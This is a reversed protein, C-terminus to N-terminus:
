ADPKAEGWRKLWEVLAARCIAEPVTLAWETSHWPMGWDSFTALYGTADPNSPRNAAPGSIEFTKHLSLMKEVVLWASAINTSYREAETPHPSHQGCTNFTQDQEDDDRRHWACKTCSYSVTFGTADATYVVNDELCPAGVQIGMIKTAVLADLERGVAPGTPTM